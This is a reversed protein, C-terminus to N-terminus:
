KDKMQKAADFYKKEVHYGEVGKLDTHSVLTYIQQVSLGSNTNM